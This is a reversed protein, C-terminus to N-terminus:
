EEIKMLDAINKWLEITDVIKWRTVKASMMQLTMSLGQNSRVKVYCIRIGLGLECFKLGFHGGTPIV